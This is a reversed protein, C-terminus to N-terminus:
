KKLVALVKELDKAPQVQTDINMIKWDKDIVFTWRMATTSRKLKQTGRTSNIEIEQFGKQHPVGFADAIKGDPDSLLQFYIRIEDSFCKLSDCHDGSIGIVEIDLNQLENQQDRYNEAQLTCGPTMAAPYFYIVCNKKGKVSSSDFHDGNQNQASFDPALDGLRLKRNKRHFLKCYILFLISKIM